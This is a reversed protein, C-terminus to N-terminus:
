QQFFEEPHAAKWQEVKNNFFQKFFRNENLCKWSICNEILKEKIKQGKLGWERAKEHCARYKLSGQRVEDIDKSLKKPGSFRKGYEQSEEGDLFSKINARKEQYSQYIEGCKFKNYESRFVYGYYKDHTHAIYNLLTEQEDIDLENFIHEMEEGECSEVDRKSAFCKKLRESHDASYPFEEALVPLQATVFLAIGLLRMMTGVSLLRKKM